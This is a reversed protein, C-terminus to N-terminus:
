EIDPFGSLLRYRIETNNADVVELEVSRFVVRNGQKLDYVLNQTFAPRAMDNKFERYMFRIVDDAGGNYVLEQKFSPSKVDVYTSDSILAVQEPKLKRDHRTINLGASNVYAAYIEGENGEVLGIYEKLFMAEGSAEVGPTPAFFTWDKVKYIAQYLGPGLLTTGSLLQVDKIEAALLKAPRKFVKAKEIVSEGVRASAVIEPNQSSPIDVFTRDAPLMRMPTACGVLLFAVYISLIIRM